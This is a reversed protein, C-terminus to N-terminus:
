VNAPLRTPRDTIRLSRCFSVLFNQAVLRVGQPFSWGNHRVIKSSRPKTLDPFLLLPEQAYPYESLPPHTPELTLHHQLKGSPSFTLLPSSEAM